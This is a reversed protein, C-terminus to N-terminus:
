AIVMCRLTTRLALAYCGLGPRGWTGCRAHFSPALGPHVPLPPEM